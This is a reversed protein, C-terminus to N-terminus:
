GPALPADSRFEISSKELRDFLRADRQFPYWEYLLLEGPRWLAVWALVTLGGEIVSMLNGAPLFRKMMEVTLISISLFLLGIVLSRGGLRRIRRLKKSAEERRVAFHQHIAQTVQEADNADVQPLCIVLTLPSALTAARELIFAEAEKRLRRQPFPSPACRKLLQDVTQLSLVIEGRSAIKQSPGVLTHGDAIM